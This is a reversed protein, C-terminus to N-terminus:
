LSRLCLIPPAFRVSSATSSESAWFLGENTSYGCQFAPRIRHSSFRCRYTSTQTKSTLPKKKKLLSLISLGLVQITFSKIRYCCWHCGRSCRRYWKKTRLAHQLWKPDIVSCVCPLMSDIEQISSIHKGYSIRDDSQIFVFFFLSLVFAIIVSATVVISM